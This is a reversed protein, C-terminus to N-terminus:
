RIALCGLVAIQQEAFLKLEETIDKYTVVGVRETLLVNKYESLKEVAKVSKSEYEILESKIGEKELESIFHKVIVDDISGITKGCILVDKINERNCVAKINAIAFEEQDAIPHNKQKEDLDFVRIKYTERIESAKNVKGRAVYVIIIGICAVAAGIVAGAVIFKKNLGLSKSEETKAGNGEETAESTKEKYENIIAMQEASLNATLEKVTKELSNINKAIGAKSTKIEADVVQSYNQSVLKATNEGLASKQDATYNNVCEEVKKALEEVEDKNQSKVKIVFSNADTNITTATSDNSGIYASLIENIYQAESNYGANYIDYGLAGSNVYNVYSNLANTSSEGNGSVLYYTLSVVSENYPDIKMLLSNNLYTQQERIDDQISIINNVVNREDDSLNVDSAVKTEKGTKVQESISAKSEKMYKYGGLIAAGVVAAIIVIWIKKWIERLLDIWTITRDECITEYNNKTEMIYSGENDIM